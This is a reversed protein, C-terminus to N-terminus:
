SGRNGALLCKRRYNSTRGGYNGKKQTTPAWYLSMHIYSATVPSPIRIKETLHQLKNPVM